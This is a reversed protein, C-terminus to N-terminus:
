HKVKPPGAEGPAPGEPQKYHEHLWKRLNERVEKAKDPDDLLRDILKDRKKADKDALFAAVQKPTPLTGTIDLTVRRIFQEDTCLDAPVLGLKQWKRHTFKDVVTQQSRFLM